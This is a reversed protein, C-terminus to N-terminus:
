PGRFSRVEVLERVANLLHVSSLVERSDAEGVEYRHSCGHVTLLGPGLQDSDESVM